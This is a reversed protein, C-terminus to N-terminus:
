RVGNGLYLTAFDTSFWATGTLAGSRRPGRRIEDEFKALSPMLSCIVSFQIIRVESSKAVSANCVVYLSLCVVSLRCCRIAISSSAICNCHEALLRFKLSSISVVHLTTAPFDSADDLFKFNSNFFHNVVGDFRRQFGQTMSQFIETLRFVEVRDVDSEITSLECM